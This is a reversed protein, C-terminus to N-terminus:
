HAQIVPRMIVHRSGMSRLHIEMRMKELVKLWAMGTWWRISDVTNNIGCSIGYFRLGHLANKKYFGDDPYVEAAKANTWMHRAQTVIMKDQNGDPKWDYTFMTLFGGSLTDVSQPYWKNLMETRISKDIEEALHMREKPLSDTGCSTLGAITVCIVILPYPIRIMYKSSLKFFINKM